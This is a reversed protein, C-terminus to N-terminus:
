DPRNKTYLSIPPKAHNADIKSILKPWIAPSYGNKLDPCCMQTSWGSPKESINILNLTRFQM